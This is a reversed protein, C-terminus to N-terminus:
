RLLEAPRQRLTHEAEAVIRRLIDGAPEISHVLGAVSGARVPAISSDGAAAAQSVRPRLEERLAQVEADRGAWEAVFANGLVRDGIGAPFPAQSIIDYVHTIVADDTSSQVIRQKGWATGASELSAVFRTGIWAGEAGLMLVAALGRGDGIGGAAIVCIGGAVDIVAPVLPLSGSRMGTHGGAEVGQAAVVDVGARVAQQALAVSQVQALVKLGHEHALAVYPTPDAFSLSIAAVREDIAAQVLAATGAAPTIFGVGFPKKTLSRAQRIQGRLWDVDGQSGGILGFGGAESVAAALQAGAAGAMPANVIPHEVGLIDCL